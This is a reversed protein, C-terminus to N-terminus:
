DKRNYDIYPFERVFYVPLLPGTTEMSYFVGAPTRLANQSNNLGRNERRVMAAGPGTTETM